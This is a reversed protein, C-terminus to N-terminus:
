AYIVKLNLTNDNVYLYYSNADIKEIEGFIQCNNDTDYIFFVANDFEHGTPMAITQRYTSNGLDAGWSGSSVTSFSKTINLASLKDGDTGDHVHSNVRDINDEIQDYWDTDRIAPKKYGNSLTTGM